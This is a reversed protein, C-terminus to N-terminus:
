DLAKLVRPGTIATTGTCTCLRDATGSILARHGTGQLHLATSLGATSLANIHCSIVYIDCARRILCHFTSHHYTTYIAMDHCSAASSARKSKRKMCLRKTSYM